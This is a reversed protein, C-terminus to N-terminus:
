LPAIRVEWLDGDLREAHVVADEARLLGELAPISGFAREGDVVLTREGERQALDIVDGDAEFRAVEIVNAALAWTRGAKRVARVRYPPELEFAEVLGDPLEAEVLVEDELVVFEHEDGPADAEIALVADYERQRHVGHIGVLDDWSARPAREVLGGERALKEHLPEERRWFPM